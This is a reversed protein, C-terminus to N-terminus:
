LMTERLQFASSGANRCLKSEMIGNYVFQQEQDELWGNPTCIVEADDAFTRGKM